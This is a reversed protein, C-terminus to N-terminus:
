EAGGFEAPKSSVWWDCDYKRSGHVKKIPCETFNDVHLKGVTYVIGDHECLYVTTGADDLRESGRYNACSGCARHIPDKFCFHRNIKFLKKCYPCQFRTVKDM